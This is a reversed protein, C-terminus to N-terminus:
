NNGNGDDDGAEHNLACSCSASAIDAARDSAPRCVKAEGACATRLLESM